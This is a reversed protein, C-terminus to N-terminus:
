SQTLVRRATLALRAAQGDIARIGLETALWLCAEDFTALSPSLAVGEGHENVREAYYSAPEAYSRAVYGCTFDISEGPQRLETLQTYM